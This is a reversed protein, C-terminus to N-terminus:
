AASASNGTASSRPEGNPPIEDIPRRAEPPDTHFRWHCIPREAFLDYFFWALQDKQIFPVLAEGRLADLCHMGLSELEQISDHVVDRARCADRLAEGQAIRAKRSPRGRRHALREAALSHQKAELVSDRLSRLMSAFYPTAKEARARTWLPVVVMDSIQPKHSM